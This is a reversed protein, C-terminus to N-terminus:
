RLRMERLSTACGDHVAGMLLKSAGVGRSSPAVYLRKLECTPISTTTPFSRLAVSGTVTEVSQDQTYALYVCGRNEAAYKGPLRALEEEFGQFDLKVPLSQAYALFLQRVTDKDAPFIAPRIKVQPTKGQPSM